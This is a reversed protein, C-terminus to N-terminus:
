SPRSPLSLHTRALRKRARHLRTKAAAVTIDLEHAIERLSKDRSTRRFIITQLSPDLKHIARQIRECRQNQDCLQEPNLRQDSVDFCSADEEPAFPKEFSIEPRSRRKRIVMLASNIAIRTLWSSLRCRGEFSPLGRFACILADQLADEADERNRTISLICKYLRDAYLSQLEEFAAHSGTKAAHLFEDDHTAANLNGHHLVELSNEMSNM